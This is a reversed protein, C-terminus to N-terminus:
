PTPAECRGSVVNECPHRQARASGWGRRQSPWTTKGGGGCRSVAEPLASFSDQFVWGASTRKLRKNQTHRPTLGRPHRVAWPRASIRGASSQGSFSRKPSPNPHHEMRRAGIGAASGIKPTGVRSVPDRRSTSCRNRLRIRHRFSFMTRIGAKLGKERALSRNTSRRAPRPRVGILSVRFIDPQTVGPSM